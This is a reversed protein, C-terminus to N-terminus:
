MMKMMMMTMTMHDRRRRKRKMMKVTVGLIRWGLSSATRATQCIKM